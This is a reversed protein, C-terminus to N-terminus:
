DNDTLGAGAGGLRSQETEPVYTKAALAQWKAMNEDSIYVRSPRNKKAFVDM